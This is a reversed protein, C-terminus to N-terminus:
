QLLIVLSHFLRCSLM